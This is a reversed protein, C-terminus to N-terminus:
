RLDILYQYLDISKDLNLKHKLREKRKRVTAPSIYLLQAIEKTETQLYILILLRLDNSKLQPFKKQLLLNLDTQYLNQNLKRQEDSVDVQLHNRLKRVVELLHDQSYNIGLNLLEDLLERLLENRTKIYLEQNNILENHVKSFEHFESNHLKYADIEEAQLQSQYSLKNLEIEKLKLNQDIYKLERKNQKYQKYWLICGTVILLLFLVGILVFLVREKKFNLQQMQNQDISRKLDFNLRVNELSEENLEKLTLEQYKMVSDKTQFALKIENNDYYTEALVEYVKLKKQYNIKQALLYKLLSISEKYNDQALLIKSITLRIEFHEENFISEPYQILLNQLEKTDIKSKDINLLVNYWLIRHNIYIHKSLIDKHLPELELLYKKALEFDNLEFYVSALNVAYISKRVEDNYSQALEYSDLLYKKAKDFAKLKIYVVAFNNLVTMEDSSDNQKVTLDYAKQFYHLASKNNDMKYYLLGLNNYILFQERYNYKRNVNNQALNFAKFANNFDDSHMFDIAKTINGMAEIDKAEASLFFCNFLTFFLIYGKFTM